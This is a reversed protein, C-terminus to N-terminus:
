AAWEIRVPRDLRRRVEALLLGQASLPWGKIEPVARNWARLTTYRPLCEAEANELYENALRDAAQEFRRELKRAAAALYDPVEGPHDTRVQRYLYAESCGAQGSVQAHTVGLADITTKLEAANM